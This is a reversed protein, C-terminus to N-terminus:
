QEKSRETRAQSGGHAVTGKPIGRSQCSKNTLQLMNPSDRDCLTNGMPQLGQPKDRNQHPDGVAASGRQHGSQPTLQGCGCDRQVTVAGAHITWLWLRELTDRGWHPDGMPQLGESPFKQFANGATDGADDEVHGRM